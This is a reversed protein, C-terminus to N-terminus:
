TIRHDRGSSSGGSYGGDGNDVRLQFLMSLSLSLQYINYLHEDPSLDSATTVAM